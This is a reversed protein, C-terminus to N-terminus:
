CRTTSHRSSASNTSRDRGCRASARLVAANGFTRLAVAAPNGIPLPVGDTVLLEAGAEAASDVAFEVAAPDFVVDFTLLMVPRITPPAAVDRPRIDPDSRIPDFSV